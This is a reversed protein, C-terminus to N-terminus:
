SAKLPSDRLIDTGFFHPDTLRGGGAEYRQVADQLSSVNSPNIEGVNSHKRLINPIGKGSLFVTHDFLNNIANDLFNDSIPHSNWAEVFSTMGVINIQITVASM